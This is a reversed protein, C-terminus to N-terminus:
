VVGPWWIDMVIDRVVDENVGPIDTDISFEHAYSTVDVEADPWLDILKQEVAIRYANTSEEDLGDGGTLYVFLYNM